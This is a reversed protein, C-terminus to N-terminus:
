ASGVAAPASFLRVFRGLAQPDGEVMIRGTALAEDASLGEKLLALLTRNDMTFAAVPAQPQGERTTLQCDNVRVEFVRGDVRLEYTENLGAANEPKFIVRMAVFFASTPLHESDRPPGLFQAGWRGLEFVAPSLGQGLETLEYVTSGAPPPLVSRKVLGRRELEHLRDALLNTGIGPLGELLDKYRRPGLLLDRIILLTWREGVVDLTRALACFQNYSRSKRTQEDSSM